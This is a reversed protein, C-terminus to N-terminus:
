PASSSLAGSGSSAAGCVIVGSEVGVADAGTRTACQLGPARAHTAVASYGKILDVSSLAVSVDATARFELQATDTSYRLNESWFAEEATRLAGLDSRMVALYGREKFNRYRPVAIASLSGLLAMVVLLEIITFGHRRPM